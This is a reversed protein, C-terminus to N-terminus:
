RFTWPRLLAQKWLPTHIRWDLGKAARHKASPISSVSFMEDAPPFPNPTHGLFFESGRPALRLPRARLVSVTEAGSRCFGPRKGCGNGVAGREAPGLGARDGARGSAGSDPLVRATDRPELFVIGRRACGAGDLNALTWFRTPKPTPAPANPLSRRPRPGTRSRRMRGSSNETSLERHTSRHSAGKRLAGISIRRM